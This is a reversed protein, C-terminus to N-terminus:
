EAVALLLDGKKTKALLQASGNGVTYRNGSQTLSFDTSIKGNETLFELTFEANSPLRLTLDSRESDLEVKGPCSAFGVDLVGSKSEADVESFTCGRTVLRGTESEFSLKQATMDKVTVASSEVDIDIETLQEFFREPVRLTLKKNRNGTGVAFFWSSKRYKVTLTKGDGSVGWRLRASEPLEYDCDESLSIYTDQCAVIEVEGDIWDVEIRSISAAPVSGEGIEYGSEDYRYDSWGFSWKGDAVLANLVGFIVAFLLLAGVVVGLIILAKKTQKKM